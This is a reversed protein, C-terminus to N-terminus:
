KRNPMQKSSIPFRVSILTSSIIDKDSALLMNIGSPANKRSSRILIAKKRESSLLLPFM